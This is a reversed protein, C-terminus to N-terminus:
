FQVSTLNRVVVVNITASTYTGTLACRLYEKVNETRGTQIREAGVSSTATFAAGTVAAYPDTAADDDSDEITVTLNGGAIATVQLFAQLGFDTASGAGDDFGTLDEAGSSTELGATIQHGFELGYRNSQADISFNLAGDTGRTGDYNIQKGIMVGADDGLTVGSLWSVIQDTTPLASLRDHLQDSAPNFFAAYQMRGDRLGGIRQYASKDISTVDIPTNGGGANSLSGVDGSLNYGAVLFRQNLGSQKVM